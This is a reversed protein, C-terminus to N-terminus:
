READKRVCALEVRKWQRGAANHAVSGFTIQPVHWRVHASHKSLWRGTANRQETMAQADSDLASARLVGRLVTECARAARHPAGARLSGASTSCLVLQQAKACKSPSDSAPLREAKGKYGTNPVLVSQM